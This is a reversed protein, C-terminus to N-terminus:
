ELSTLLPAQVQRFQRGSEHLQRPLKVMEQRLRSQSSPLFFRLVFPWSLLEAFIVQVVTYTGDPFLPMRQFKMFPGFRTRGEELDDLEVDNMQRITSREVSHTMAPGSWSKGNVFSLTVVAVSKSGQEITVNRVAFRRGGSLRQVRYIFPAKPNSGALFHTQLNAVVFDKPVTKYAAVASNSM